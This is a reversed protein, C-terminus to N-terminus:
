GNAKPETVSNTPLRVWLIM